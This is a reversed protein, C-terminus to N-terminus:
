LRVLFMVPGNQYYLACKKGLSASLLSKLKGDM